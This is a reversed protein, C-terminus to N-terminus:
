TCLYRGSCKWDGGRGQSDGGGWEQPNHQSGGERIPDCHSSEFDSVWAVQPLPPISM